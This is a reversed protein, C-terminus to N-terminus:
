MFFFKLLKSIKTEHLHWIIKKNLVKAAVISRINSAGGFVYIKSLKNKNILNIIKLVDFIFNYFFFLFGYFNKNLWKINIEKYNINNIELKKKFDYNNEKGIFVQITKKFNTDKFINILLRQPGGFKSDEIFVGIKKLM